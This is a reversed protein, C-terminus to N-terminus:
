SAGPASRSPVTAFRRPSALSPPWAACLYAAATFGDSYEVLFVVADPDARDLDRPIDGQRIRPVNGLAARLLDVQWRGLRGAEWAAPGELCQVARIGVEGGRRREVFAQLLELTHFGYVELGGFGLVLAGELVIGPRLALPPRRLRGARELGGDDPFGACAIPQVDVRREALRLLFAQRQLGAREAGLPPLGQRDGRFAPATSLAGAGERQVSIRWARWDPDRRGRGAYRRPSGAWARRRAHRLDSDWVPALGRGIDTAPFQEIALSVVSAHPQHTRGLIAYGEIFKTIIDDAHSYKFYATTIAALRLKPGRPPPLADTPLIVRPEPLPQSKLM